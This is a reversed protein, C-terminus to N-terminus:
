NSKSIKKRRLSVYALIFFLSGILIYGLAIAKNGGWSYIWAEFDCGRRGCSWTDYGFMLRMAMFYFLSAILVAGIAQASSLNVADQQASSTTSVVENQQGVEKASSQLPTPAAVSNASSGRQRLTKIGQFMVSAGIAFALLGAGCYMALVIFGAASGDSQFEKASTKIWLYYPVSCLGLGLLIAGVPFNKILYDLALGFIAVIIIFAIINLM